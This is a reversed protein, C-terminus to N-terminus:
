KVNYQYSGVVVSQVKGVKPTIYGLPSKKQGKIQARNVWTGDKLVFAVLKPDTALELVKSTSIKAKKPTVSIITPTAVVKPKAKVIVNKTITAATTGTTSASGTYSAPKTSSYTRYTGNFTYTFLGDGALQDMYKSVTDEDWYYYPYDRRLQIKIELNTVTNNAKALDQAVKQVADKMAKMAKTKKDQTFDAACIICCDGTKIHCADVKFSDTLIRFIKVEDGIDFRHDSFNRNIEVIDGVKYWTKNVEDM